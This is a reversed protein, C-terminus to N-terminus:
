ITESMGVVKENEVASIPETGEDKELSLPDEYKEIDQSM